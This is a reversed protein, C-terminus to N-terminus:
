KEFFYEELGLCLAHYIPLHLEQIKFTEKEKVVISVDSYKKLIGGDKGGLLVVKLGKAKATVAAYVLNKSNGSTSICFLVDGRDGYANVQQAFILNPDIDNSYATNLAQHSCLSIARLPKQLKKSLELGLDKDIKELEKKLDEDIERKKIFGKMLEGVIHESDACSGGNGAFLIKKDTKYTNLMCNFVDEIEKKNEELIPYRLFLEEIFKSMSKKRCSLSINEIILM